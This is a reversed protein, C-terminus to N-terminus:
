KLFFTMKKVTKYGILSSFMSMLKLFKSKGSAFWRFYKIFIYFAYPSIYKDKRQNFKVLDKIVENEESTLDPKLRELTALLIKQHDEMFKGGKQLYFNLLDMFSAKIAGTTNAGHIRYYILPKNLFKVKGKKSAVINLWWDHCCIDDPFPLAYNVLNRKIMFTCGPFRSGFLFSKFDTNRDVGIYKIFSDLILKGNENIVFADSLICLISDDEIIEKYLTDIKDPVWIDDQDALAIFSGSCLNITKEFNKIVGLRRKNAFYKLNMKKSYEELIEITKDTSQDDCAIVEINKYTQSTISNLFERLYKKETM